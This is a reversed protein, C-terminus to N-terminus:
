FASQVWVEPSTYLWQFNWKLSGSGDAGWQSLILGLVEMLVELRCYCLPHLLSFLFSFPAFPLLFNLYHVRPHGGRQMHSFLFRGGKRRSSKLGCWLTASLFSLTGRSVAMLWWKGLLQTRIWKQWGFCWCANNHHRESRTCAVCVARSSPSFLLPSSSLLPSSLFLSLCLFLPSSFLYLSLFFSLFFSLLFFSLFFSLFFFSLLFFSLFLIDWPSQCWNLWKVM